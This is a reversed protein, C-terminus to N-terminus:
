TRAEEITQLGAIIRDIDVEIDSVVWILGSKIDDFAREDSAVTAYIVRVIDRLRNLESHVDGITKIEQCASM